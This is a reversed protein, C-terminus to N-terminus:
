NVHTQTFYIMEAEGASMSSQSRLYNILRTQDTNQLTPPFACTLHMGAHMPYTLLYPTISHVDSLPSAASSLSSSFSGKPLRSSLVHRTPWPELRSDSRGDCVSWRGLLPPPPPELASRELHPLNRATDAKALHGRARRGWPAFRPCFNQPIRPQFGRTGM